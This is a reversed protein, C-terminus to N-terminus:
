HNRRAPVVTRGHCVSGRETGHLPEQVTMLLIEAEAHYVEEGIADSVDIRQALGIVVFM